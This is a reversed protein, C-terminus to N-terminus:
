GADLLEFRGLLEGLNTERNARSRVRDYSVARAAVVDVTRAREIAQALAQPTPETLIGNVGDSVWARNAEIDSLVPTTGLALAELLAISVGDSEALSLYVDAGAILREVGAGDIRGHFRVRDCVGLESALAELRSREPGDGAVDLECREHLLPLSRLILDTRYLPTLPRATVLRPPEDDNREGRVSSGVAALREVEVGYQLVLVELPKGATLKEIASRMHEAPTTILDAGVLVRRVIQRVFPNRPSLLVDSGHTTVVLPHAGSALAILGYSTATHAQVINPRLATILRRARPIKAVYGPKGFRPLGLDHVTYPRDALAEAVGGCTLVHVDHGHAAYFTAFRETHPMGVWAVLAIRM